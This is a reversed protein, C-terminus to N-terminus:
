RVAEVDVATWDEGPHLQERPMRQVRHEPPFGIVDVGEIGIAVCQPTERIYSAVTVLECQFLITDRDPDAIPDGELDIADGIRLDSIAVLEM